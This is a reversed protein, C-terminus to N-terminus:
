DDTVTKRFRIRVLSAAVFLLLTTWSVVISTLWARPKYRMVITNPGAQVRVARFIFDAGRVMVSKGNVEAQWGPAWRDTIMLWGPKPADVQLKMSNPWYSILEVPAPSAPEMADLSAARQLVTDGRGGSESLSVALQEMEAPSHLILDPLGRKRATAAFSEFVTKTPPLEVAREAFWCRGTGLAFGQLIPDDVFARQFDNKLPAYSDLVALKLPVNKNTPVGEWLEEPSHLQRKLGHTTLDLSAVHQRDMTRWWKVPGASYMVPRSILLAMVADFVAIALLMQTFRSRQFRFALLLLATLLIAAWVVILHVKGLRYLDPFLHLPARHALVRFFLGATLGVVISAGLFKGAQRSRAGVITELDSAGLGALICLIFISYVSFESANRFYRTPPLYDYIWGRLPLQDGLACCLYFAAVLALWYRWRSGNLLAMLGLVIVVTGAYINSMSIDSNPWIPHPLGPFDLLFLYPSALTTLAGVPLTNSGVAEARSRPGIRNTYGHTETLFGLYSPCLILGGTAGILLLGLVAALIRSGGRRATEFRPGNDPFLLRGIAWLALFGPTLITFQPYGGLASLGYLVGAQVASWYRRTILFDDFRWCIWPLFAISFLSSTHEAHATFFGSAVFGLAAVAGGWPPCKLRRTLLLMGLGAGIWILIWYAVFGSWPSSFLVGVLLMGPSSTGLEPEAFDPSGGAAWPNWLLLRHSRAHDAVLSFAPGFFDAADWQPAVQGRLLLRNGLLLVLVLLAAAGVWSLAATGRAARGSNPQPSATQGTAIECGSGEM